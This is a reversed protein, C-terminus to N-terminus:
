EFNLVTLQKQIYKVWLKTTAAIVYMYKAIKKRGFHRKKKIEICLINDVGITIIIM